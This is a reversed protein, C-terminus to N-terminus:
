YVCRDSTEDGLRTFPCVAPLSNFTGATEDEYVPKKQKTKQVNTAYDVKL